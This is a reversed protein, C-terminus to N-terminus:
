KKANEDWWTIYQVGYLPTNVPRKINKRLALWQKNLHYLPMMYNGNMLLRDYARIATHFKETTRAQILEEIMADIAPDAAGALNFSGEVDKAASSWRGNQEAGPSFSAYSAMYTVDFDFGTKRRELQTSDVVRIEMAIGLKEVNQQWALALREQTKSNGILLEFEFPKGSADVMKKDKFSYGADKFLTLARRLMQRDFGGGDSVPLNYEGSLIAPDINDKYPELLKLEAQTAPKGFSSLVSNQWYSQTRKYGNGFLNKNVWEFDFLETLAQRVKKNSFKERRTNFIFGQMVAPVTKEFELKIIEGSKIAPFDFSKQWTQPNSVTFIDFLGKKFADFLTNQDRFYEFKITDFNDFGRKVPLDRAWYDARRSFTISSGPNVESIQYPGSGMMPKLSTKTFEERNTAHKPFIPMLGILLPLERDAQDNFTFRVGNTGVKESKAIKKWRNRYNPKGIEGLLKISFLVDEATVPKGDAFRAKPNIHFEIFNRDEDTIVKQALLGYLSFPEDRNRHLLSEFVNYGAAFDWIGRVAAGRVIFPNLSDFTGLVGYRMTGGKPADPNVYPFSDYDKPLAPLGHMAIGHSPTQPTQANSLSAFAIIILALLHASLYKIM